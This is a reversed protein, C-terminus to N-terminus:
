ARRLQGILETLEGRLGEAAKAVVERNATLKKLEGDAGKVAEELHGMVEAKPQLFYAKGVARYTGVGDPLEDLQAATYAARRLQAEVTRRQQDVNRLQAQKADFEKKLSHILQRKDDDAM